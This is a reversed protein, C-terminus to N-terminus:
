LQAEFGIDDFYIFDKMENKAKEPTLFDIPRVMNSRFVPPALWRTKIGRAKFMPTIKSESIIKTSINKYYNVELGISADAIDIKSVGINSSAKMEIKANESSSILITASDSTILETIIVHNKDWKGNKYSELVERGLKLQDKISPSRTGNAKFLVSNKSGFEVIIGVDVQALTSGEPSAKGSAKSTVSVSGESSYEINSPSDDERTEFVFGIDIDSISGLRTFVNDRIVGIDGLKLPVGPEWTALYGFKKFMEKTYQYMPGSM